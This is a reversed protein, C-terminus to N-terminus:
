NEKEDRLKLVELAKQHLEPCQMIDLVEFFDSMHSVTNEDYYHKDRIYASLENEPM